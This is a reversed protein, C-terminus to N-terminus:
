FRCTIVYEDIMSWFQSIIGWWVVSSSIIALCSNM